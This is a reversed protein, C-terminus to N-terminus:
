ASKKKAVEAVAVALGRMPSTFLGLVQSLLTSKTPMAAVASAEEANIIKGEVVGGKLTTKNIKKANEVIIKAPTVPDDYSVAVASTGHLYGDLGIFGASEFARLMIRNKVVKYEVSSKRLENRLQTDEAVTMGCYDVLMIGKAKKFKEALKKVEEAKLKKSTESM